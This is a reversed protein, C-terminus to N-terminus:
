DQLDQLQAEEDEMAKELEVFSLEMAAKLELNTFNDKLKGHLLEMFRTLIRSDNVAIGAELLREMVAPDGTFVHAINPYVRTTENNLRVNVEKMFAKLVLTSPAIEKTGEWFDVVRVDSHNDKVEAALDGLTKEASLVYAFHQDSYTLQLRPPLAAQVTTTRVQGLRRIVCRLM